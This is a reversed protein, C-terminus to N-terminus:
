TSGKAKAHPLVTSKLTKNRMSVDVVSIFKAADIWEVCVIEVNWM